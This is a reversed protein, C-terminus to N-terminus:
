FTLIIINFDKIFELLWGLVEVETKKKSAFIGPSARQLPAKLGLSLIPDEPKSPFSWARSLLHM